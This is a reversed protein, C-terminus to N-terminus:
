SVKTAIASHTAQSSRDAHAFPAIILWGASRTKDAFEM